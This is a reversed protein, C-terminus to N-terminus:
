DDGIEERMEDWDLILLQSPAFWGVKRREVLGDKELQALHDCVATSGLNLIDVIDRYSVESPANRVAQLIIARNCSWIESMYSM